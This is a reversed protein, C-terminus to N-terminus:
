ACPYQVHEFTNSRYLEVYIDAYYTTPYSSKNLYITVFESRFMYRRPNSEHCFQFSEISQFSRVVWQKLVVVHFSTM